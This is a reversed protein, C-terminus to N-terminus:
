ALQSATLSCVVELIDCKQVAKRKKEQECKSGAIDSMLSVDYHNPKSSFAPVPVAADLDRAGRDIEEHTRRDKRASVPRIFM